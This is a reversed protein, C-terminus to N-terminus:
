SAAGPQPLDFMVLPSYNGPYATTGDPSKVRGNGSSKANVRVVLLRKGDPMLAAAHLNLLKTTEYYPTKEGPKLFMLKGNGTVGSTTLIWYGDDHMVLDTIFGDKTQGFELKTTQKKTTLDYVVLTPIGQVTSGNSPQLGGAALSKGDPTFRLVRVGGVDQLLKLAWFLKGDLDATHKRAAVDWLKITGMFDGSALTKGDPSFAVSFVEEKHDALDALKKGSAADWLSVLGDRSATALTKGDRSVAVDRIWASHAEAVNWLPKPEAATYDWACLRGWSDATFVRNGTPAFAVCQVWGGHGPLDALPAFEDDTASWRNVNGIMGGAIIFKGCPSIRATCLQHQDNFEKVLELPAYPGPKKPPPAKAQAAPQPKKEVPKAPPKAATQKAAAPKPKTESM